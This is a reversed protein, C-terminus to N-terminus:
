LKLDNSVACMFLKKSEQLMAQYHKVDEFKEHRTLELTEKLVANVDMQIALQTELEEVKELENTAKSVSGGATRSRGVIKELRANQQRLTRMEIDLRMLKDTTDDLRQQLCGTLELLKEREIQSVQACISPETMNNDSHPYLFGLPQGASVAKRESRSTPRRSRRSAVHVPPLSSPMDATSTHNVQRSRTSDVKSSKKMAQQLEDRLMQNDQILLEKERELDKLRDNDVQGALQSSLYVNRSLKETLSAIEAKLTKVNSTLMKNRAKLASCQQQVKSYEFRLTELESRADDLNKQKGTEIKQLTAKQRVDVTRGAHSTDCFESLNMRRVANASGSQKVQQLQEGFEALKNQLAIIQQARGRWGSVGSLLASMSVGEGVEKTIVKQALKLEQKLVHCQNRQEVMKMKLHQLQDQLQAIVREPSNDSAQKATTTDKHKNTSLHESLRGSDSSDATNEKSELSKETEKLKKQLQRVRNKETALEAGLERNRKSLEVIRQTASAGVAGLASKEEERAKELELVSREKQKLESKLRTNSLQLQEVQDRLYDAEAAVSKGSTNISGLSSRALHNSKENTRDEQTATRLDLNTGPDLEIGHHAKIATSNEGAQDPRVNESTNRKSLINKRSKFREIQQQQILQLREQLSVAEVAM